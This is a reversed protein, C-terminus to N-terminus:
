FDQTELSKTRLLTSLLTTTLKLHVGFYPIGKRRRNKSASRNKRGGNKKASPDVGIWKWGNKKASPDVGVGGVVVLAPKNKQCTQVHKKIKNM